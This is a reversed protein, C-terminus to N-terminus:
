EGVELLEYAKLYIADVVQRGEPQNWNTNIVDIRSLDLTVLGFVYQRIDVAARNAERESMSGKEVRSMLMQQLRENLYHAVSCEIVIRVEPEGLQDLVEIGKEEVEFKAFVDKLTAIVAQRAAAQELTSGIPALKDIFDTLVSHVNRSSVDVGRERATQAIGQRAVDAFFGGIASTAARGSRAAQASIRAGGGAKVYSAAARRFDTSSRTKLFSGFRRKALTWSNQKPKVALIQGDPAVTGSPVTVSTREVSLEEQGSAPNHLLQEYPAPNFPIKEAWPPLLEKEKGKPGPYSSSTGMLTKAM